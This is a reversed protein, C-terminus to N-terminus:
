GEVELLTWFGIIGYYQFNIKVYFDRNYKLIIFIDYVAYNKKLFFFSLGLFVSYVGVKVFCTLDSGM